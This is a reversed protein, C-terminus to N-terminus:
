LNRARIGQRTRMVEKTEAKVNGHADSLVKNELHYTAKLDSWDEWSTDEPSIWDMSSPSTTEGCFFYLGM